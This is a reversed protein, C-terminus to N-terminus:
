KKVKKPPTHTLNRSTPTHKAGTMLEGGVKHIPGKYIKGNPLYHTASKSM